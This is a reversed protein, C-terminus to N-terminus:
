HVVVFQRALSSPVLHLNSLLALRVMELLQVRVLYIPPFMHIMMPLQATKLPAAIRRLSTGLSVDSDRLVVAGPYGDGPVAGPGFLKV